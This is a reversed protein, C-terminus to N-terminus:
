CSDFGGYWVGRVGLVELRCNSSVLREVLRHTVSVRFDVRRTLLQEVLEIMENLNTILRRRNIPILPLVHTPCKLAADLRTKKVPNERERQLFVSLVVVIRRGIVALSRSVDQM